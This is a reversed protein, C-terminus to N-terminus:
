LLRPCPYLTRSTGTFNPVPVEAQASGGLVAGIQASLTRRTM